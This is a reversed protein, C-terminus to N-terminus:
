AYDLVAEGDHDWCTVFVIRGREDFFVDVCIYVLMGRFPSIITNCDPVPLYRGLLLSGYFMCLQLCRELLLM